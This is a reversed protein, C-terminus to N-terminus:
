AKSKMLALIKDFFKVREFLSQEDGDNQILFDALEVKANVDMQSRIRALVDERNVNDREIVRKIRTEEDAQVVIVYDLREDMESEFILAAEILVYPSREAPPLRRILLDVEAFVHPHIIKDLKKKLTQNQFVIGALEKRNLNGDQSFVQEGFTKRISLKVDTNTQTLRRAIDDASLVSRGLKAFLKCVTSKGSGIGGTVGIRLFSQDSKGM